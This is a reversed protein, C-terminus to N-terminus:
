FVQDSREIAANLAGVGHDLVVVWNLLGLKIQEFLPVITEFKHLVDRECQVHEQREHLLWGPADVVWCNVNFAIAVPM